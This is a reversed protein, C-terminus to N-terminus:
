HRCTFDTGWVELVVAHFAAAHESRESRTSAHRVGVLIATDANNQRQVQKSDLHEIAM